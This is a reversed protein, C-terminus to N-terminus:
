RQLLFVILNSQLQGVTLQVVLSLFQDLLQRKLQLLFLMRTPLQLILVLLKPFLDHGDLPLQM